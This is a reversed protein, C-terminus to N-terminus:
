KCRTTDQQQKYQRMFSRDIQRKIRWASHGHISAGRFMLFAQKNGTSLISLINRQPRYPFLPKGEIYKKLNEWLTPAQRVAYVGVKPLKPHSSPTICDGIGFIHPYKVTQLTDRVSLYGDDDVPLGSRRFISHPRPGALWLLEEFPITSTLTVLRGDLVKQVPQHLHLKVGKRKAIVEIKTSITRGERELLPGASVLQVPNHIQHEKRWSQMALSMEIGAAGGGVVAINNRTKLQEFVEPMLYNPKILRSFEKAGPIDVGNTLSGIDFSILDFPIQHGNETFLLNSEADVHRAHDELLNVNATRTLAILDIEIEDLSYTGEIWGSFMGSYYQFRSPSILTTEVNVLRVAQLQKLVYLHGHGGGVLLLKM